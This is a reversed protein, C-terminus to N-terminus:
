EESVGLASMELIEPFFHPNAVGKRSLGPCLSQPEMPTSTQTSMSHGLVSVQPSSGRSQLALLTTHPLHHYPPPSAGRREPGGGGWGVRGTGQGSLPNRSVRLADSGPASRPPGHYTGPIRSHRPAPAKGAGEDGEATAGPGRRHLPQPAPAARSGGPPKPEKPKTRFTRTGLGGAGTEGGGRKEPWFGRM